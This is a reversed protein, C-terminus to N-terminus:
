AEAGDAEAEVAVATDQPPEVFATAGTGRGPISSTM